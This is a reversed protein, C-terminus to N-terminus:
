DESTIRPHDLAMRAAAIEAEKKSQGTGSGLIEGCWEVNAEFRKAHDPGEQSVIKYLPSSSSKSQLLEQLQGKPNIEVPKESLRVLEDQLLRLVMARADAYSSDIYVAAVLAEFADALTSPRNRGGSSEEGKGMRLYDGLDIELAYNMLAARSVMRSRLKTLAGETFESFRAYLEHTLILQLVADGLFELRQNDGCARQTEYSLSPHTLAQELLERRRFTYGLTQELTELM